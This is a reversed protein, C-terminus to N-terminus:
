RGTRTCASPGRARQRRRSSKHAPQICSHPRSPSPPRRCRHRACQARSSGRSPTAPSPKLQFQATTKRLKPEVVTPALMCPDHRLLSTRYRYAVRLVIKIFHFLMSLLIKRPSVTYQLYAWSLFHPYHCCPPPLHKRESEGQVRREDGPGQPEVIAATSM